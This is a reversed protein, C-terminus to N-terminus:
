DRREQRAKADAQMSLQPPLYPADTGVFSVFKHTTAKEPEPEVPPNVSTGTPIVTPIVPKELTVPPMTTPALSRLTEQIEEQTAIPYSFEVWFM